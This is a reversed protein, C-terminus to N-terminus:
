REENREEKPRHLWGACDCGEVECLFVRREPYGTSHVDAPHGCRACLAKAAWEVEAEDSEGQQPLVRALRDYEAKPIVWIEAEPFEPGIHAFIHRPQSVLKWERRDERRDQQGTVPDPLVWPGFFSQSM